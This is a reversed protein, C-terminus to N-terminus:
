KAPELDRCLHSDALDFADFGHRRALGFFAPQPRRCPVRTFYCRSCITLAAELFM